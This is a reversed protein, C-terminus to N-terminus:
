RKKWVIFWEFNTSTYTFSLFASLWQLSPAWSIIPFFTWGFEATQTLALPMISIYFLVTMMNRTLTVLLCRLRRPDVIRPHCLWVINKTLHDGQRCCFAAKHINTPQNRRQKIHSKKGENGMLCWKFGCSFLKAKCETVCECFFFVFLSISYHDRDNTIKTLWEQEMMVCGFFFFRQKWTKGWRFVWILCLPVCNETITMSLTLSLLSSGTQPVDFFSIWNPSTWFQQRLSDEDVEVNCMKRANFLTQRIM